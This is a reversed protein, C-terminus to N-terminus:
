TEELGTLSTGVCLAPLSDELLSLWLRHPLHIGYLFTRDTIYRSAQPTEVPEIGLSQLYEKDNALFLPEQAYCQIRRGSHKEIASWPDAMIRSTSLSSITALKSTEGLVKVMMLFAELQVHACRQWNWREPGPDFSGVGLCVATEIAAHHAVNDSIISQLKEAAPSDRWARCAREHDAEIDSISLSPNTSSIPGEASEELFAATRTTRRTTKGKGRKRM